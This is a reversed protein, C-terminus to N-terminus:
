EKLGMNKATPEMPEGDWTCVSVVFGPISDTLHDM